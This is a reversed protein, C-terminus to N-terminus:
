RDAPLLFSFTSGVGEESDVWIRGGNAEVLAKAVAMGVGTEGMGEVLPQHARYLRRFVKPYDDPAIGGGTDTVSIQLHHGDGPFAEEQARITVQSGEESCLAANSLLRLMIQYLSDRDSAVRSLEPPLDLQVTLKRERFRAALGMIAEEIIEILDIPDSALEVPRTDPSTIQILDNLLHNLQEVNAKVRELFQRQMDTLIGAQEGLVLDTYGTIATMPTRFDSVMSIITEHSALEGDDEPVEAAEEDVDTLSTPMLGAAEKGEEPPSQLEAVAEELRDRHAATQELKEKVGALAQSLRAGEELLGDRDQTLTEIKRDLAEREDVLHRVENQWVVLETESAGQRRSELETNLALIEDDRAKLEQVLARIRGNLAQIQKKAKEVTEILRQREASWGTAVATTQVQNSSQAVEATKAKRTAIAETLTEAVRVLDEVDQAEWRRQRDLLMLGLSREQRCLPLVASAGGAEFGLSALLATSWPHEGADNAVVVEQQAVARELGEYDALWLQPPDIQAATPPHLAVVQVADINGDDTLAIVCRDVGLLSALKSSALILSSELDRANRLSGVVETLSVADALHHRPEPLKPTQLVQRHVLISLLPLAVLSSLRQWGEIAAAPTEAVLTVAFGLGWFFGIGVIWEWEPPRLWVATLLAAALAILVGVYEWLYIGDSPVFQQEPAARTVASYSYILLSFALIALLVQTQWRQPRFGLLGAWVLTLAGCVVTWRELPSLLYAPLVLGTVALLGLVILGVRAVLLGGTAWLWRTAHISDPRARYATLASLFAQQLAFLTVLFYVLNGPPQAVLQVAENLIRM